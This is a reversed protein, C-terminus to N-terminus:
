GVHRLNGCPRFLVPAGDLVETAHLAGVFPVPMEDVEPITFAVDSPQILDSFLEPVDLYGLFPFPKPRLLYCIRFTANFYCPPTLLIM